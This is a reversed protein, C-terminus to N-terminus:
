KYSGYGNPTALAYSTHTGGSIGQDMIVEYAGWVCYGGNPLYTGDPQGNCVSGIWVIKYHWVTGDGGPVKGNIENDLWAGACDAPTQNANCADWAANWKMILQDNVSAGGLATSCIAPDTIGYKQCWQMYTGNFLRATYNYGYQNFGGGSAWASSSVGMLGLSSVMVVAAAGLISKKLRGKISLARNM